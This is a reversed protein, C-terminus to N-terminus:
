NLGETLKSLWDIAGRGRTLMTALVFLVALTIALNWDIYEGIGTLGAFLGVGAFITGMAKTSDKEKAVSIANIAVGVGVLGAVKTASM